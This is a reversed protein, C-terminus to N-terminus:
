LFKLQIYYSRNIFSENSYYYISTCYLSIGVTNYVQPNLKRVCKLGSDGTSAMVTDGTMRTISCGTESRTSVVQLQAWRGGMRGSPRLNVGMQSTYPEMDTSGTFIILTHTHPPPPSLSPHLSSFSGLSHLLTPKHKKPYTAMTLTSMRRIGMHMYIIYNHSM